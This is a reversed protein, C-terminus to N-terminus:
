KGATYHALVRQPTLATGYIAVEDITGAFVLDGNGGAASGGIGLGSGGYGAIPGSFPRTSELVGNVYLRIATGDYSIVVHYTTNLAPQTVTHFDPASASGAQRSWLYLGFAKNYLVAAYPSDVTLNPADGYDVLATFDLNYVTQRMWLEVTLATEPELTLSPPVTVVGALSWAGGSFTAAGDSDGTLLGAAGRVVNAGYSGDHGRGSADHAVTGTPEDLRYYALPADALVTAAYSGALDAVGGDLPAPQALDAAATTTAAPTLEVDARVIGHPHLQVPPASATALVKGQALADVTLVVESPRAAFDAFLDLPFVLPAPSDPRVRVITQGDVIATVRLQDADLGTAHVTLLVGTRQCATTALLAVLLVHRIRM